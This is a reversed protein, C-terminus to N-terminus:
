CPLREKPPAQGLVLAVHVGRIQTSLPELEDDIM